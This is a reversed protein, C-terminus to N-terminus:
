FLREKRGLNGFSGINALAFAFRRYEVSMGCCDWNYTTQASAYQLFGKNADFGINAAGSFGRKNTAGYGLLVRFQNFLQTDTTSTEGPLRLFADGGGITFTGIRYDLLATSSNIRGKKIDYDLDWEAGTRETTQFRLRSLLPSLRRAETLFAIGTLDVTTTFVNRTGPV